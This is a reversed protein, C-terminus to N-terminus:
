SLTALYQEALHRHLGLDGGFVSSHGSPFAHEGLNDLAILIQRTAQGDRTLELALQKRFFPLLGADHRKGLAWYAHQRGNENLEHESEILAILELSLIFPDFGNLHYKKVESKEWDGLANGNAAEFVFAAATFSGQSFRM